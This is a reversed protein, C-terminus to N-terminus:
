PLPLAFEQVFGGEFRVLDAIDRALEREIEEAPKVSVTAATESLARKTRTGVVTVTDLPKAAEASESDSESDVTQAAVNLPGSLILFLGIFAARTM